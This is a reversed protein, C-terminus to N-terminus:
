GYAYVAISSYKKRAKPYVQYAPVHQTGREGCCNAGVNSLCTTSFYLNLGECFIVFHHLFCVMFQAVPYSVVIGRPSGFCFSLISYECNSVCFARPKSQPPPPPRETHAHEHSRGPYDLFSDYVPKLRVSIPELRVSHKSTSVRKEECLFQNSSCLTTSLALRSSKINQNVNIAVNLSFRRATKKKKKQEDWENDECM